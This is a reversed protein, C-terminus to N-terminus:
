RNSPGQPKELEKKVAAVLKEFEAEEFGVSQYKIRGDKGVVVCRPISQTAFKGFIERKPDAAFAFTFKKKEKFAKIEAEAHERGVAILVLGKKELPEWLKQQLHPMESMCPGCWTAFFNLVVVQGELKVDKGDITRISPVPTKDGVKTLTSEDAICGSQSICVAGLLALAAPFSSSCKLNM